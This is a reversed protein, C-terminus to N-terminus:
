QHKWKVLPVNWSVKDLGLICPVQYLEDNEIMYGWLIFFLWLTQFHPHGPGLEQLISISLTHLAGAEQTQEQWQHAPYAPDASKFWTITSERRNHIDEQQIQNSSLIPNSCIMKYISGGSITSTYTQIWSSNSYYLVYLVQIPWIM